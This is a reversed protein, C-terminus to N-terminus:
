SLNNNLAKTLTTLYINRKKLFFIRIQKLKECILMYDARKSWSVFSFDHLKLFYRFHSPSHRACRVLFEGSDSTPPFASPM